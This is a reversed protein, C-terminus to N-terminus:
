IDHNHELWKHFENKNMANLFNTYGMYIGCIAKDYIAKDYIAKNCM